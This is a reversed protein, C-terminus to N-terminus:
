YGVICPVDVYGVLMMLGVIWVCCILVGIGLGVGYGWDVVGTYGL